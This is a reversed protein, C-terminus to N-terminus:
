FSERLWREVRHLYGSRSAGLGRTERIWPSPRGAAWAMGVVSSFAPGQVSGASRGVLGVGSQPGLVRVERGLTAIAVQELGVTQAVGGTLVVRARQVREIGCADLRRRVDSLLWDLRRQALRGLSARTVAGRDTNDMGGSELPVFEYEDAANMVLTAYLTKIREAEALPIGLARAVDHTVHQGGHPLSDCYVFCGGAFGAIATQGAGIDVVVVDHEREAATTAALASAFAGPVIAGVDLLSREVLMGVNRLPGAEATVGLHSAWLVRGELGRPERVGAVADLGFAIRSLGLVALGDRRAYALAGADLGAIEAEGVIGTAVDIQGNFTTSRVGGCMTAVHVEEIRVGAAQEAQAVAACVAEEAEAIDIVAGAEIGRSRQHGLGLIRMRTSAEGSGYDPEHAAILCCTKHTGIDLAAVIRGAPAPTAPHRGARIM